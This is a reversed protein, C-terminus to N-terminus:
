IFDYYNNVVFASILTGKMDLLPDIIVKLGDSIAKHIFIDFESDNKIISFSYEPLVVGAKNWNSLQKTFNFPNTVLWLAGNMILPLGSRELILMLPAYFNECSSHLKGILSTYLAPEASKCFICEESDDKIKLANSYTTYAGNVSTYCWPDNAQEAKYFTQNFQDSKEKASDLTERAVKNRQTVYRTSGDELSIKVCYSGRSVDSYDPQWAIIALSKAIKQYSTFLGQGHQIQEFWLQYDFDKIAEYERFIEADLIGVVRDISKLCRIHVLGFDFEDKENDIEILPARDESIPDSCHICRFPASKREFHKICFQAHAISFSDNDFNYNSNIPIFTIGKDKFHNSHNAIFREMGIYTATRHIVEWKTGNLLECFNDQFKLRKNGSKDFRYMEAVVYEGEEPFNKVLIIDKGSAINSQLHFHLLELTKSEKQEGPVAQFYKGVRKLLGDKNISSRERSLTLGISILNSWILKPSINTQSSILTIVAKELPLNEEIDLISIRIRKLIENAIENSIIKGLRSEYYTKILYNLKLFTDQESQNLPNEFFTQDNNKISEIIKKLDRIIKSSAKSSTALIYRDEKKGGSLYQDVFQKIVKAFESSLNDSFNISRKAQIYIKSSVTTVVLDDIGDNTEFSLKSIEEDTEIGLDEIFPLEMIMQIMLLASIRQQFDVGANTASGGANSQM